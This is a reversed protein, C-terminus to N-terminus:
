HPSPPTDIREIHWRRQAETSGPVDNVRRLTAIVIEDFKENKATVGYTRVPVTVYSSGAAGEVQGPRGVEAHYERNAAFQAAFAAPTLGSKGQWLAQAEAYKKAEILAFYTQMVNAAGMASSAAYPAESITERTPTATNAPASAANGPEPLTAPENSVPAAPLPDVPAAGAAAADNAANTADNAPQPQATCAGLLGASLLFFKRMM